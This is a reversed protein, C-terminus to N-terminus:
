LTVHTLKKFINTLYYMSLRSIEIERKCCFVRGVVRSIERGLPIYLREKNLSPWLGLDPYEDRVMWRLFLNIRKLPSTSHPKPLFNKKAMREWTSNPILGRIRYEYLRRWIINNLELDYEVSNRIRRELDNDYVIRLLWPFVEGQPDLNHFYGLDKNILSVMSNWIAPDTLESLKVKKELLLEILRRFRSIILPVRMRFDYMASVFAIAEVDVRNCSPIREKFYYPISLMSTSLYKDKLFEYLHDLKARADEVDLGQAKGPNKLSKDM